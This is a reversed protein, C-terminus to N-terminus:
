CMKARTKGKKAVGDAAKVYGGSKMAPRRARGAAAAEMGRGAKASAMEAGRGGMGRGMMAAGGMAMKKTKMAFEKGVSQPVGAKKAFEPSNAVARMFRAQKETKAPM